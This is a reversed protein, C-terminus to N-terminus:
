GFDLEAFLSLQLFDHDQGAALALNGVVVGLLQQADRIGRGAAVERFQNFIASQPACADSSPSDVVEHWLLPEIPVAM